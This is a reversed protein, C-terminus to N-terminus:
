CRTQWGTQRDPGDWRTQCSSHSRSARTHRLRCIHTQWFKLPPRPSPFILQQVAKNSGCAKLEKGQRIQHEWAASDALCDPVRIKGARWRQGDLRRSKDPDVSAKVSRCLWLNCGDAKCLLKPSVLWIVKAVRQRLVNWSWTSHSHSSCAPGWKSKGYICTILAPQEAQSPHGHPQRKVRKLLWKWSSWQPLLSDSRVREWFCIIILGFNLRWKNARSLFAPKWGTLKEMDIEKESLQTSISDWWAINNCSNM